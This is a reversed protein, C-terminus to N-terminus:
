TGQPIHNVPKMLRKVGPACIMELHARSKWPSGCLQQDQSLPFSNIFTLSKSHAQGEGESPNEDCIKLLHYFVM